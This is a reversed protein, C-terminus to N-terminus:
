VTICTYDKNFISINVEEKQIDYRILWNGVEVVTMDKKDINGIEYLEHRAGRKESKGEGKEETDETEDVCTIKMKFDGPKLRHVKITMSILGDYEDHVMKLFVKKGLKLRLETPEKYISSDRFTSRFYSFSSRGTCDVFGVVKKNGISTKVDIAAKADIEFATDKDVEVSFWTKHRYDWNKIVRNIRFEALKISMEFSVRVNNILDGFGIETSHVGSMYAIKAKETMNITKGMHYLYIAVGNLKKTNITMDIQDVKNEKHVIRFNIDLGTEKDVTELYNFYGEFGRTHLQQWVTYPNYTIGKDEWDDGYVEVASRESNYPKDIDIWAWRSEGADKNEKEIILYLDGSLLKSKDFNDLRKNIDM